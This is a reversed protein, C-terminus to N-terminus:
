RSHPPPECEHIRECTLIAMGVRSCPILKPMGCPACWSGKVLMHRKLSLIAPDSAIGDIAGRYCLALHQGGWNVAFMSFKISSSGANLVLIVDTM